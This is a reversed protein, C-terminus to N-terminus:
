GDILRPLIVTRKRHDLDGIRDNIPRIENVVVLEDVALHGSSAPVGCQKDIPDPEVAEAVVPHADTTATKAVASPQPRRPLGVDRQGAPGSLGPTLFLLEFRRKGVSWSAPIWRGLGIL